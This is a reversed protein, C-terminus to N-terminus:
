SEEARPEYLNLLAPAAPVYLHLLAPARAPESGSQTAEEKTRPLDLANAVAIEILLPWRGKVVGVVMPAASAGM